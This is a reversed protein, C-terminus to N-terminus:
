GRQRYSRWMNTVFDDWAERQPFGKYDKGRQSRITALHRSDDETMWRDAYEFFPAHNWAKRVGPVLRAALAEGIWASSTCCRRYDEGLTGPWNRPQLHEYPGYQGSGGQGYHGAYLAKAGTWGNGRVTQMDEGFKGSVNQMTKVGLMTGAFVIPFKRGSGHGGHAPWGPHGRRRLGHLDIGYQTLYVLLAEKRRPSYNLTLQLGAMGVARAIERSYDPMYEVPSDFNFFLNDVWPRRFHQEYEALSPTERVPRLRPLLNRKLNRSLYIPSGKGAYSPRFADPPQPKRVSTLVSISRVPSGSAKDFLWRRISGVRDVSISSVLSDGPVLSIPLRAVVDEDYRNADTRSDFGTDDVVPPLNKVSGNRGNAPAPSIATITVRGVVYFDGTVFRGVPAPRSFTWTVGDKSVSTRKPLQALKPTRPPRKKTYVPVAAPAAAARSSPEAVAAPGSGALLLGCSLALVARM